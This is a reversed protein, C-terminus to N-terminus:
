GTKTKMYASSGIQQDTNILKCKEWAIKCNMALRPNGIQLLFLQSLLWIMFQITLAM